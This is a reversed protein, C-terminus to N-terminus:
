EGARPASCRGWGVCDVLLEDEDEDYDDWGNGSWDLLDGPDEFALLGSTHTLIDRIANSISTM